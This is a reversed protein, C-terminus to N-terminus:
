FLVIKLGSHISAAIARGASDDSRHQSDVMRLTSWVVRAEIAVIQL